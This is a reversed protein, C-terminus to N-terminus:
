SFMMKDQESAQCEENDSLLSMDDTHLRISATLLPEDERSSDAVRLRVQVATM